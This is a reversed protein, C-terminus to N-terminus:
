ENLDEVWEIYNRGTRQVLVVKAEKKGKILIEATGDRFIASDEVFAGSQKDYKLELSEDKIDQGNVLIQLGKKGVCIASADERSPSNEENVISAYYQEDEEFLCVALNEDMRSMAELRAKDLVSSIKETTETVKPNNIVGVNLLLATSLIGVIVVTIIMEIFSMGRTNLKRCLKRDRIFMM